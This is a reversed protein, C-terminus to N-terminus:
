KTEGKAEYRVVCCYPRTQQWADEESCGLLHRLVIRLVGAHTVVAVSGHNNEVLENVEAVVRAEFDAYTEGGPAPLHPYGNIWEQAYRPDRQEIQKWTLGEWEGFHIERLAPRLVQQIARGKAIAGATYRARRLDSSYVTTFSEESLDQVLQSLQAQGSESLDPDSHGCYMGAMATEAHRIFVVHSVAEV